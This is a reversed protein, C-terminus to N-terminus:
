KLGCNGNACNVKTELESVRESLHNICEILVGVFNGYAVSLYEGDSHVLEPFVSEVEQAIVGIEKRLTDIRTYEYGRLKSLRGLADHVPTAEIKLRQDSYATVNGSAYINGGATISGAASFNSSTSLAGSANLSGNVQAYGGVTLNGYNTVNGGNDVNWAWGGASTLFGVLGGDAYVSRNGWNTDTLQILPATSTVTLVPVSLGGTMTDGAKLVVTSAEPVSLATRAAAANATAVLSRGYSTFSATAVGSASTFYPVTDTAPTTTLIPNNLSLQVATVPGTLNPFTAKLVAKLLRVHDDGEKVGDTSAPYSANLDSIYSASEVPM